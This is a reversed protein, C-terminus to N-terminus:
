QKIHIHRMRCLSSCFKFKKPAAGKMDRYYEYADEYRVIIGCLRCQAVKLGSYLLKVDAPSLCRGKMLKM